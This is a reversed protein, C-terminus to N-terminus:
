VKVKVEQKKRQNLFTLMRAITRKIAGIRGPNQPSTGTSSQAKLKMLEKKLEALKTKIQTENMLKIEKKKLTAM